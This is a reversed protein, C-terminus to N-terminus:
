AATLASLERQVSERSISKLALACDDEDPLNDLWRFTMHHIPQNPKQENWVLLWPGDLHTRRSLESGSVGACKAIVEHLIAIESDTFQAEDSEVLPEYEEKPKPKNFVPVETKRVIGAAELGGFVTRYDDIVPGNPMAVYEAGTIVRLHARYHWYDAYFIMKLLAQFGPREPACRELLYLVTNALKANTASMTTATMNLVGSHTFREGM